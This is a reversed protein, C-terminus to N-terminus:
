GINVLRTRTLFNHVGLLGVPPVLFLITRLVAVGISPKQNKQDVLKINLFMKGPTQGMTGEFYVLYVFFLAAYLGGLWVVVNNSVSAYLKAQAFSEVGFFMVAAYVFAVLALGVVCLDTCFAYSRRVLSASSATNTFTQVNKETSFVPRKQFEKEESYILGPNIAYQQVKKKAYEARLRNKDEDSMNYRDFPKDTETKGKYDGIRGLVRDIESDSIFNTNMDIHDGKLPNYFM